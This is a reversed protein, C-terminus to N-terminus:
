SIERSIQRACECLLGIMQSDISNTAKVTTLALAAVVRGRADMIPCAAGQIGVQLEEDILAYGQQRIMQLEAFLDRLDTKTYPTEQRRVTSEFIHKAREEDMYAAFVRGGSTAYLPMEKGTKVMYISADSNEVCDLNLLMDGSMVCLVITKQITQSLTRMYPRAAAVLANQEKMGSCLTFVKYSIHYKKTEVDQWVFHNDKLSNLVRHTSSAPIELKESLDSVSIGNPEESIIELARLVRDVLQM